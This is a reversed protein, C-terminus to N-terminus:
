SWLPNDSAARIQRFIDEASQGSRYKDRVRDVIARYKLWTKVTQETREITGDIHLILMETEDTRFDGDVEGKRGNILITQAPEGGRSSHSLTVYTDGLDIERYFSQVLTSGGNAGPLEVCSELEYGHPIDRCAMDVIRPLNTPKMRVELASQVIGIVDCLTVDTDELLVEFEQAYRAQWWRPYLRVLWHALKKM